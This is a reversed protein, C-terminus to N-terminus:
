YIWLCSYYNYKGAFISEPERVLRYMTRKVINKNWNPKLSLQTKTINKYNEDNRKYNVIECKFGLRSIVIQTAMTQLLSGYNEVGHRTIVVIKKM